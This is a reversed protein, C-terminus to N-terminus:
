STEFGPATVTISYDGPLVNTFEYNGIGDTHRTVSVDKALDLLQVTASPVSAGTPDNITGLVSASDFQAQAFPHSLLLIAFVVVLARASNLVIQPFPGAPNPHRSYIYNRSMAAPEEREPM